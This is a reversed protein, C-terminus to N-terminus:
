IGMWCQVHGPTSLLIACTFHPEKGLKIFKIRMDVLFPFSDRLNPPPAGQGLSGFSKTHNHNLEICILYPTQVMPIVRALPPRGHDALDSWHGNDSM